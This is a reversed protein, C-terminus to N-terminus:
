CCPAFFFVDEGQAGRGSRYPHYQPQHRRELTGTLRENKPLGSSEGKENESLGKIPGDRRAASTEGQAAKERPMATSASAEAADARRKVDNGRRRVVPMTGSASTQM